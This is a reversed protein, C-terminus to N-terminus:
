KFLKKLKKKGKNINKKTNKTQKEAENKLNKAKNKAENELNKTTQKPHTIADVTKETTKQIPKTDVKVDVDANLGLIAAAKGEIGVDIVGKDFKAHADGSM